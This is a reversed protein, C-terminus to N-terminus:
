RRLPQALRRWLRRRLSVLSEAYLALVALFLLVSWIGRGSGEPAGTGSEVIAGGAAEQWARREEETLTRLRAESAPPHAVMRRDPVLSEGREDLLSARHPGRHRVEHRVAEGRTPERYRDGIPDHIEVLAVGEGDPRINWGAGVEAEEVVGGAAGSLWIVARHVLPVFATRIPLDTWDFDITSTWMLVRGRGLRRSVLAPAGDGFEALTRVSDGTSPELLVYRFITASRLSEAARGSFPALVPHSADLAAIRTARIRADPDHRDTLTRVTRLRAPLLPELHLNWRDVDLHDGATIWLGGGNEVFTRLLQVQEGDLREVNALLVVDQDALADETIGAPLTERAHLPRLDPDMADMAANVYFLEDNWARTRPDGNVLLVRVGRQPLLIAHREALATMRPESIIEARVHVPDQGTTTVVFRTSSQGSAPVPVRQEAVREDDLFLRIRVEDNVDGHTRLRATITWAGIGIETAEELEISDIVVHGSADVASEIVTFPGLGEIADPRTRGDEWTAERDDTFVLTRRAPLMLARHTELAEALASPIGGGGFRPAIRALASEAEARSGGEAPLHAIITDGASVIQVRDWPRLQRLQRRAAALAEDWSSRGAHTLSMSASDDLILVVSSPLREDDGGATGARDCDVFPQAMALPLAAFLLIRLLLLLAQKVRLGRAIRERSELLLRMAPFPRRVAHRRNILHVIVPLAMALLGALMWPAGFTM